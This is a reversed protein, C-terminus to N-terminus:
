DVGNPDRWRLQWSQNLEAWGDPSPFGAAIMSGVMLAACGMDPALDQVEGHGILPPFSSTLCLLSCKSSCRGTGEGKVGGQLHRPGLSTVPGM